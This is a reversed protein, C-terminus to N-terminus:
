RRSTSMGPLRTAAVGRPAVHINRLVNGRGRRSKWRRRAAVGRCSCHDDAPARRRRTGRVSQGRRTGHPPYAYDTGPTLATWNAGLYACGNKQLATYYHTASTLWDLPWQRAVALIDAVTAQFKADDVPVDECPLERRRELYYGSRACQEGCGSAPMFLALSSTPDDCGCTRPCMQRARVGLTSVDNCFPAFDSCM